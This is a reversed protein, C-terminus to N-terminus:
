DDSDSDERALWRAFGNLSSESEPNLDIFTQFREVLWEVAFSEGGRRRQLEDLGADSSYM